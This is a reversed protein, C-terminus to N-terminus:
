VYYTGYFMTNTNKSTGQAKFLTNELASVKLHNTLWDTVCFNVQLKGFNIEQDLMKLTLSQQKNNNSFLHQNQVSPWIFYHMHHYWGSSRSSMQANVVKKESVKSLNVSSYDASQDIISILMVQFLELTKYAIFFHKICSSKHRELSSMHLLVSTDTVHTPIVYTGVCLCHWVQCIVIYVTFM